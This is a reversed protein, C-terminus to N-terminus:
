KLIGWGTGEEFTEHCGVGGFAEICDDISNCKDVNIDMGEIVQKITGLLSEYKEDTDISYVDVIGYSVWIFINDKKVKKFKRM